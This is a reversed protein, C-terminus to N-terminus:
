LSFGRNVAREYIRKAKRADTPSVKKKTAINEAVWYTSKVESDPFGGKEKAWKHLRRLRSPGMNKAWEVDTSRTKDETREEKESSAQPGEQEWKAEDERDEAPDERVREGNTNKSSTDEEDENDGEDRDAESSSNQWEQRIEQARRIIRDKIENETANDEQHLNNDGFEPQIGLEGLREFVPQLTVEPKRYFQSGRIRSFTWGLRELIAQRAMDEPLKEIPHYKDGDCEIALRKGGGEVVMDIRYYGVKWQPTVRYGAAILRKLVAKELESEARAEGSEITRLLALPDEAHAILRRRLDEPKLDVLPNLSYVVWMQDRARSAAVNFRQKFRQETRQALPGSGSPTDVVSIFMVDREDGQFQAANGCLIRHAERDRPDIHRLLLREIEQAQEEGVLSVVGFTKDKYEPQEMAAALLCSVTWVEERNIGSDERQANVRFPIVHPKVNVTSHDRLPKIQGNYSLQNSFQIIEPVCRFHELLCIAGGFSQRALDYVSM